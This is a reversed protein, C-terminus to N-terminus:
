ILFLVAFIISTTITILVAIICFIVRKLISLFYFLICLIFM